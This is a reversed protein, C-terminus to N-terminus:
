RVKAPLKWQEDFFDAAAVRNTAAGELRVVAFDPLKPTQNANSGAGAEPFTFGSNVVIYRSPNLPNPYIMVAVHSSAPFADNGARISKADWQIPLKGAIRALLRNSQPDGWLILNHAAIDEDTVAADDKVRADGRFQARWEALADAMERKVWAGAAANLAPGTPRVMLFSSMFADDIPGQLGPRKHLGGQFSDVHRWTKGDKEFREGRLESYLADPIALRQGDLEAIRGGTSQKWLDLEFASVNQTKVRVTKGDRQADVTAREWHRELGVVQLRPAEYYRLTYTAFRVRAPIRERERAMIADFKTALVQKTKPEYKHETKPGILHDLELGEKKMAEAMIDAAQKQKDLEGSYAIVPYNAFNLAYDTADYWHWLTQEYWPITSLKKAAGTYQATEAFGAGPAAAAWLVPYHAGLHWVGAGGMSFGRISIRERDIEYDRRMALYAELVDIEGAFKFANCYRGYPHLVIADLPAFEGARSQRESIFKLETLNNDRGHLWVDLRFPKGGREHYGPPIVLGIPQASGDIRSRYGRVVLGTATLWPTQGAKLAAVRAMGTKLLNRAAPVDNTRYFENYRLPWEVAKHYIEVDPLFRALPKDALSTRLQEIEKGLVGAGLQLEARNVDSIAIGPPPVQKTAANEAAVAVSLNVSLSLLILVQPVFRYNMPRITVNQRRICSTTRVFQRM